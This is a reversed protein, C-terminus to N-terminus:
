SAGFRCTSSVSVVVAVNVTPSAAVEGGLVAVDRILVSAHPVAAHVQRYDVAIRHPAFFGAQLLGAKGVEV